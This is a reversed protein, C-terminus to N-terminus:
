EEPTNKDEPMLIEWATKAAESLRDGFSQVDQVVTQWNKEAEQQIETISAEIKEPEFLQTQEISERIRRVASLYAERTFEGALVAEAQAKTRIAEILAETENQVETLGAQADTDGDTIAPTQPANPDATM